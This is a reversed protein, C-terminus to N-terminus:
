LIIGVMSRPEEDVSVRKVLFAVRGFRRFGEQLATDRTPFFGVPKAGRILVYEGEHEHWEPLHELYYAVEKNLSNNDSQGVPEYTSEEIALSGSGSVARETVPPMSEKGKDLYIKNYHITTKHWFEVDKLDRGSEPPELNYNGPQEAMTRIDDASLSPKGRKQRKVERPPSCPSRSYDRLRFSPGDTTFHLFTHPNIQRIYVMRAVSYVESLDHYSDHHLDGSALRGIKSDFRFGSSLTGRSRRRGGTTFSPRERAAIDPWTSCTM